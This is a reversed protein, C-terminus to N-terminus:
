FITFAMNLSILYADMGTGTNRQYRAFRLDASKFLFLKKNSFPVKFRSIGHVPVYRVGVGYHTSNLASLDYDSTFYTDTITHQKYPKFYKSETQTHYRYFPIITLANGLKVPTELSTTHATIGFDDWYYRYYGRIVLQDFPYYHVRVGIPLKLRQEPLSEVKPMDQEQFYVRHFPTALLGTQYIGDASLAIQLRKTLVQSYTMSLNFSQRNETPILDPQGRLEIPFYPTWKDILAQAKLSVESNGSSSEKTWSFGVQGSNYDYETSFGISAGITERKKLNKKTYTITAYARIDKSSASSINNDIRDTSASTYYDAGSFVTISQTSDMPVNVMLISSIDQLSETGIGGTVPSNNGDQDYYSTMFNVDIENSNGKMTSGEQAITLIPLCGIFSILLTNRIM